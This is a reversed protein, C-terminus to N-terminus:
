DINKLKNDGEKKKDFAISLNSRLHPEERIKLGKEFIEIAQDFKGMKMYQRGLNNYPIISRPLLEVARKFAIVADEDKGTESYTIGISTFIDMHLQPTLECELAKRFYILANEYNGLKHYIYGINYYTFAYNKNIKLAKQFQEMAQAYKGEDRFIAGLENYARANNPGKQIVDEWLKQPDQWLTNRYYTGVALLLVILLVLIVKTKMRHIICDALSICAIFFGISPLYVRHEVIVDKIPIISSEVSLTIFFWLIGFSILRFHLAAYQDGCKLNKNEIKSRYFLYVAVAVIVSLFLFSLLVQINFFSHYVPFRYDLSQNVPFVLLRLYTVIVRFQTFLYDTRDIAPTEKSFKDANELLTEIPVNINLMTLPIILMTLLLPFLYLFRKWNLNAKMTFSPNYFFYFEYLTIIVPLTFAIEKTKMALVASMFSIAYLTHAPAVLKLRRNQIEWVKGEVRAEQNKILRWQIYMLLSILYFLTAMSTARQAIYTVAQTQIPHTIFVFASSFAMFYRSSRSSENHLYSRFFPTDFTVIVLYYVLLANIIHILNNIFHYGFPKLGGLAYNFAFSLLTVYRNDSHKQLTIGFDKIIESDVVSSFDDFVFPANLIHSYIISGFLVLAFLGLISFRSKSIEPRNSSSSLKM